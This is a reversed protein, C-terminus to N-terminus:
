YGKTWQKAARKQRAKFTEAEDRVSDLFKKYEKVSFTEEEIRLTYSGSLMAERANLLEDESTSEFQIRDFLRLLWPAEAFAPATQWTNWISLTRGVLQYGGPSEMPYICIYSGGIGVGGEPTYM